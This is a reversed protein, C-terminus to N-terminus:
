PMAAICKGAQERIGNPFACERSIRNRVECRDPRHIGIGSPPPRLPVERALANGAAGKYRAYNYVVTKRSEPILAM